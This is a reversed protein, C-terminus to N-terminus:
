SGLSLPSAGVVVTHGTSNGLQQLLRLQLLAPNDAALRAANALSRLSATEGRARELAALGEARALLVEAQARKLETPLVIDKVELSEVALGTDEAGRLSATLQAADGRGVLLEDVTTRAIVERVAIQVALYIEATADQTATVLAAPNDVRVRGVVTVKVTVGDATPVEQTPVTLVWPRVDVTRLAYGRQWRRHAGPELVGVLAGRRFMVARQWQQVVVRRGVRVPTLEDHDFAFGHVGQHRMMMMTQM